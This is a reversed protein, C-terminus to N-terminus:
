LHQVQNFASINMLVTAGYSFVVLIVGLISNYIAFDRVAGLFVDGQPVGIIISIGYDVMSQLLSAFLLTNLPTTAGCILSFIIAFFIYIKDMRSAFRYQFYLEVM